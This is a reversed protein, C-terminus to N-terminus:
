MEDLTLMRKSLVSSSASIETTESRIAQRVLDPQRRRPALDEQRPAMAPSGRSRPM